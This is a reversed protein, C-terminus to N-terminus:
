RLSVRAVPHVNAGPTELRGGVHDHLVRAFLIIEAIEEAASDFHPLRGLIFVLMFVISLVSLAAMDLLTEIARAAAATHMVNEPGATACWEVAASNSLCFGIVKGPVILFISQIFGCM